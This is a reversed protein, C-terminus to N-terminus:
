PCADDQNPGMEGWGPQSRARATGLICRAREWAKPKGGAARDFIAAARNWRALEWKEQLNM